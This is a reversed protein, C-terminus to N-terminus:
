VQFVGVQQSEYMWTMLLVEMEAPLAVKVLVSNPSALAGCTNVFAMSGM